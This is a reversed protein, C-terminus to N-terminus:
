VTVFCEPCHSCELFISLMRAQPEDYMERTDEFARRTKNCLLMAKEIQLSRVNPSM